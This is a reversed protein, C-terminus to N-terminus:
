GKISTRSEFTVGLPTIEKVWKGIKGSAESSEVITRLRYETLMIVPFSQFYHKLKRITIFLALVLKEIRTYRIQADILAKSVYYVPKQIGRDERILAASIAM